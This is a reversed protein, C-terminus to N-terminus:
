EYLFDFPMSVSINTDTSKEYYAIVFTYIAQFANVEGLLELNKKIQM